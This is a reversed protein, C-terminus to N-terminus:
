ILYTDKEDWSDRLHTDRDARDGVVMALVFVFLAVVVIVGLTSVLRPNSVSLWPIDKYWGRSREGAPSGGCLGVRIMTQEQANACGLCM